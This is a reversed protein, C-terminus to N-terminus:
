ARLAASMPEDPPPGPRPVYPSYAHFEATARATGSSIAALSVAYGRLEALPTEARITMTGDLNDRQGTMMARRSCLDGIVYGVFDPPMTVEVALMPELRIEVSRGGRQVTEFHYEIEPDSWLLEHETAAALLDAARDLDPYWICSIAVSAGAVVATIRSEDRLAEILRPVVELRLLPDKATVKCRLPREESM